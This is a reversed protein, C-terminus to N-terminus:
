RLRVTVRDLRRQNDLLVYAARTQQSGLLNMVESLRELKQRFPPKGLRVHTADSGIYLSLGADPEIHIESIVERRWLGADQYDHLLAVASMLASASARKDQTVQSVDLGTIIPFDYPDGPGLPKFAVGDESVLYLEDLALLAIARREHIEIVYSGPLTRRVSASEIWPVRLLNLRAQEPAVAFVNKGLALGAGEIVAQSTLQRQGRVAIDTVAFARSGHVYQEIIRFVSLVCGVVMAALAARLLVSFVKRLGLLRRAFWARVVLSREQWSRKPVVKPARRNQALPAGSRPKAPPRRSM